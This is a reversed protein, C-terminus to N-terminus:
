QPMDVYVRLSSFLPLSTPLRSALFLSLRPRIVLRQRKVLLRISEATWVIKLPSIQIENKRKAIFAQLRIWAWWVGITVLTLLASIAAFLWANSTLIITPTNNKEITSM